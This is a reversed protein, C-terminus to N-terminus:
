SRWRLLGGQSRGTRGSDQEQDRENEDREAPGTSKGGALGPGGHARGQSKAEM